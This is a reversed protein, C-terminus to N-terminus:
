AFQMHSSDLGRFYRHHIDTLKDRTLPKSILFYNGLGRLRIIDDPSRSTTLIVVVIELKIDKCLKEFEKLFDFGDMGPMKLDLIILEPYKKHQRCDEELYELAKVANTRVIIQGAFDMNRILDENIFNTISDDDVLLM